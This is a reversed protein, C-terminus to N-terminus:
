NASWTRTQTTTQPHTHPTSEASAALFWFHDATGRSSALLRPGVARLRLLLLVRGVGAGAALAFLGASPRSLPRFHRDASQSNSTSLQFNSFIFVSFGSASVGSASRRAGKKKAKGTESLSERTTHARTAQTVAATASQNAGPLAHGPHWM